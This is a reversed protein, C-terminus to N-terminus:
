WGEARRTEWGAAKGHRRLEHDAPRTGPATEGSADPGTTPRGVPRPLAGSAPPCVCGPTLTPFRSVPCWRAPRLELRLLDRRAAYAQERAPVGDAM